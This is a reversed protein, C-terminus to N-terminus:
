DKIPPAFILDLKGAIGFRDMYYTLNFLALILVTVVKLRSQTKTEEELTMEELESPEHSGAQSTDPSNEPSFRYTGVEM